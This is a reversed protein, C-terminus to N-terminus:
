PVDEVKIGFSRRKDYREKLFRYRERIEAIYLQHNFVFVTQGVAFCSKALADLAMEHRKMEDYIEDTAAAYDQRSQRLRKAEAIEMVKDPHENIDLDAFREIFNDQTQQVYAFWNIM